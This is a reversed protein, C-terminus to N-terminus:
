QVIEGIQTWQLLLDFQWGAYDAEDGWMQRPETLVKASSVRASPYSVGADTITLLRGFNQRNLSAFYIQEALDAARNWPPIGSGPKAAWCEVQGVPRRLPMNGEPTGGVTTPVVVYGNPWTTDDPPLTNGVGSATFGPISSIWAVFVLRSSVFLPM